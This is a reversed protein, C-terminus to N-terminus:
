KTLVIGPGFTQNGGRRMPALPPAPPTAWTTRHCTYRAAALLVAGASFSGEPLVLKENAPVRWRLGAEGGIM